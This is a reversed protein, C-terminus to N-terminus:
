ISWTERNFPSILIESLKNKWYQILQEQKIDEMTKPYLPSDEMMNLEDQTIDPKKGYCNVGFRVNPNAIFGGNIGPRGCDNEHDKITQLKDYTDKQTPFLALQDKSWGYSCWEGGEQYSNEVEDYSALRSNYAKCLAKANDFDYINGPIHFVQKKEEKKLVNDDENGPEYYTIDIKPQDSFLSTLTTKLNINFFYMLGNLLILCVLLSYFLVNLFNYQSEGTGFNSGTGNPSLKNGLPPLFVLYIVIITLFLIFVPSGIGSGNRSGGGRLNFSPIGTISNYNFTSM